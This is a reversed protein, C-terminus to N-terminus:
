ECLDGGIELLFKQILIKMGEQSTFKSDLYQLLLQKVFKCNECDQNKLNNYKQNYALIEEESLTRAEGFFDNFIGM